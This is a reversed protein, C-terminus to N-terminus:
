VEKLCLSLPLLFKNTLNRQDEIFDGLSHKMEIELGTSNGLMKKVKLLMPHDGTLFVKSVEKEGKFMTYKYFDIVREIETFSDALDGAIKEDHIGKWTVLADEQIMDWNDMDLFHPISRLFVPKHHHFVSVNISSMDWEVLMIHDDEATQDLHDLYYFRYLSLAAVDAVDPKTNGEELHQVYQNLLKEPVAFFLIEISESEEGSDLVYFDFSADEFPLHISTGIEFNIHGRIEEKTLNNPLSLKRFFISSDPVLFRINKRKLKWSSICEELILSFNTEDIIKGKEIIGEPIAKEYYDVLSTASSDKTIVCRIVHDKFQLSIHDQKRFNLLGTM